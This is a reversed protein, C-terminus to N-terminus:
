RAPFRDRM